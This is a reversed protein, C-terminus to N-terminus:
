KKTQSKDRGSKKPAAKIRVRMGGGEPREIEFANTKRVLDSLKGFGYTRPDWDPHLKSLQSGLTSLPVWGDDGEIQALARKIM